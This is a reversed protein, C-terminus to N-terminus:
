PTTITINKAAAAALIEETLRAFATAHLTITVGSSGSDVMRAISALSLNPSDAFSVSKRVSSLTVEELAVCGKFSPVINYCQIYGRIVHLRSAFEFTKEGVASLTGPGGSMVVEEVSSDAFLWAGNDVGTQPATDADNHLVAFRLPAGRFCRSYTRGRMMPWFMLATIVDSDTLDDIADFAWLRTTDDRTLQATFWHAGDQKVTIDFLKRARELLWGIQWTGGIGLNVMVQRREEATLAQENKRLMLAIFDPEVAEAGEEADRVMVPSLETRDAKELELIKGADGPYATNAEKGIELHSGCPALSTGNWRYSVTTQPCYYTKSTLPPYGVATPAGLCLQQNEELAWVPYYEPTPPQETSSVPTVELIFRKAGPNFLVRHDVEGLSGKYEKGAFSGSETVFGDFDMVDDVFSPLFRAAIVGQENLPAIGPRTLPPGGLENEVTRTPAGICDNLSDIAERNCDIQPQIEHPIIYDDINVIANRNSSIDLALRAAEEQIYDRIQKIALFRTNSEENIRESLATDARRRIETENTLSESLASDATRRAATEAALGEQCQASGELAKRSNELAEYLEESWIHGITSEGLLIETEVWRGHNELWIKGQTIEESTPSKVVAWMGPLPAPDRRVLDDSAGYVGRCSGVINRARLWGKVTLNHEVTAEGRVTANGGIISHRGIGVDGPFEKM